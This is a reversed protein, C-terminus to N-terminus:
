LSERLYEILNNMMRVGSEVRFPKELYNWIGHFGDEIHDWTVKVGAKRLRELYLIGDDRLTDYEVTSIYADPLDRLDAAMLPFAYPNLLFESLEDALKPDEKGNTMEMGETYRKPLLSWDVYAKYKNWTERSVHRGKLVDQIYNQNFGGYYLICKAMEVRTGYTRGDNQVHSPLNFDIAQLIPYIMVQIKPQPSFKLDRLKLSVAAALNGGASDGLYM